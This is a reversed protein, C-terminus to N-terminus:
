RDVQVPRCSRWRSILCGAVVVTWIVVLVVLLNRPYDLPLRSRNDARRGTGILLPIALVTVVASAFLGGLVWPRAWRVLRRSLLAGVTIALPLAVLDHTILVGLLFALAGAQNLGPDAIAGVVAIGIAVLGVIVLSVRIANM